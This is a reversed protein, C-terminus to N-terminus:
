KSKKDQLWRQLLLLWVPDRLAQALQARSLALRQTPTLESSM